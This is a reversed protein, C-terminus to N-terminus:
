FFLKMYLRIPWIRKRARHRLRLMSELAEKESQLIRWFFLANPVIQKALIRTRKRRMKPFDGLAGSIGKLYAVVERRRLMGIFWYFQFLFIFPLAKIFTPWAYNKVVVNVANKTTLRVTFSNITGGTTASGIHFVKATPVYLCKLGLLNARLNLDVDELYAFFDEDFYGVKEFFSQRYVAAGACAGFVIRQEDYTGQDEELTGLKYGSGSRLIGDGAGDLVNRDDYRLMKAACWDIDDRERLVGVMERLFDPDAEIDNNLLCVYEADSGKIGANVAAAFGRNEKFEIIRLSGYNKKLLEVSDDVSGNDVVVVEFDRFTQRAMSDLCIRLLREGNLNPIIVSVRSRESRM